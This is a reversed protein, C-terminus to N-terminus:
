NFRKTDIQAETNPTDNLIMYFFFSVVLVSSYIYHLDSWVSEKFEHLSTLEAVSGEKLREGGQVEKGENGRETEGHIVDEENKWERTKTKNKAVKTSVIFDHAGAEEQRGSAPYEGCFLSVVRTCARRHKRSTLLNVTPPAASEQQVRGRDDVGGPKRCGSSNHSAPRITRARCVFTPPTVPSELM